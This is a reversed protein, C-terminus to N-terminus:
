AVREPSNAQRLKGKNAADLRIRTVRATKQMLENTVGAGDGSMVSGAALAFRLADAQDDFYLVVQGSMFLEGIQSGRAANLWCLRSVDSYSARPSLRTDTSSRENDSFRQRRALAQTPVRQCQRSSKRSRHASSGFLFIGPGIGFKENVFFSFLPGLSNDILPKHTCNWNQALASGPAADAFTMSQLITRWAVSKALRM